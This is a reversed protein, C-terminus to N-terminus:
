PCEIQKQGVYCIVKFHKSLSDLLIGDQELTEEIIDLTNHIEKLDTQIDSVAICIWLLIALTAGSLVTLVLMDDVKSSGGKVQKSIM